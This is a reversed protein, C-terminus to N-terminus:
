NKYALKLLKLSFTIFIIYNHIDINKRTKKRIRPSRKHLMLKKPRKMTMKTKSSIKLTKIKDM